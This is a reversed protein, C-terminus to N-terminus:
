AYKKRENGATSTTVTNIDFGHAETACRHFSWFTGVGRQPSIPIQKKRARMYRASRAHNLHDNMNTRRKFQEVTGRISHSKRGMRGRSSIAQALVSKNKRPELMAKERPM